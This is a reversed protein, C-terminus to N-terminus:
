VGVQGLKYFSENPRVFVRTFSSDSVVFSAPDYGVIRFPLTKTTTPTVITMNSTILNTGTVATAENAVLSVNDNISIALFGGPDVEVAYVQNPDIAVRVVRADTDTGLLGTRLLGKQPDVEFGVIVGVVNLGVAVAAGTAPIVQSFGTSGTFAADGTQALVVDGIAVNKASTNNLIYTEIIGCTGSTGQVRVVQFGNAM